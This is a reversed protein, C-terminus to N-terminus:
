TQHDKREREEASPFHYGQTRQILQGSFSIRCDEPIGRWNDPTQKFPCEFDYIQKVKFNEWAM